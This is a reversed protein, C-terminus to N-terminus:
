KADTVSRIRTELIDEQEGPEERRLIGEGAQRSRRRGQMRILVRQVVRDVQGVGAPLDSWEHNERTHANPSGLAVQNAPKSGTEASGEPM